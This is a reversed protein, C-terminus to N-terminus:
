QTKFHNGRLWDLTQLPLLGRIHNTKTNVNKYPLWPWYSSQGCEVLVEHFMALIRPDLNLPTKCEPWDVRCLSLLYVRCAYEFIKHTKGRSSHRSQFATKILRAGQNTLWPDNSEFQLGLQLLMQVLKWWCDKSRSLEIRLLDFSYEIEDSVFSVSLHDFESPRSFVVFHRNCFGVVDSLASIEESLWRSANISSLKEKEFEANETQRLIAQPELGDM